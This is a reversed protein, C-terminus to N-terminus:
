VIFSEGDTTLYPRSVLVLHKLLTLYLSSAQNFFGTKANLSNDQSLEKAVNNAEEWWTSTFVYVSKKELADKCLRFRTPLLNQLTSKQTM